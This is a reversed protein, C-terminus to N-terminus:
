VIKIHNTFHDIHFYICFNTRIFIAMEGSVEKMGHKAIVSTFGAFFMSILAFKMWQPM